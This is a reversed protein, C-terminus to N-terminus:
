RDANMVKVWAAIFDNVFKQKSTDFAYVESVARLESNSGFILDVSTATWKAEGTSRDLGEYIGDEDSKQWVTSMDLLNVFFDNSLTGPKSTLVGHKSGAYNADLARMGGILVTMEPVSLDLQDAKDVLMETPSKYSEKVDFYNRFGDASLELLSFSNVGTQEQTADGRGPNFPVQIDYGAVKAAQEIAAAGGLVILDALSVKDSNFWGGNAESQIGKLVAIVKEVEVPNNVAWDKQPSLALRAGNAGGRMDTDRYSAASAWATRVLEQVTLGSDLIKSKLKAVDKSDITSQTDDSIPDQWIQIDEPVESGLFNRRPGM